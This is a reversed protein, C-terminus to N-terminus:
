DRPSPSTYLLCSICLEFFARRTPSSCISIPVEGLGPLSLQVFQGPKFTWKEAIEPEVFRFLFLKDKSTLDYVRLLMCRHTNYVNEM